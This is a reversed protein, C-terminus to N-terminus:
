GKLFFGSIDILTKDKSIKLNKFEKHPTALIIIKSFKIMSNVKKKQNDKSIPSM